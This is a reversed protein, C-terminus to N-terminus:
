ARRRVLLRGSEEMTITLTDGEKWGLQALLAEPLELIGDGSGDGADQITTQWCQGLQPWHELLIQVLADDDEPLGLWGACLGESYDSWASVVDDEGAHRGVSQLCRQMRAVDNSFRKALDQRDSFTPM